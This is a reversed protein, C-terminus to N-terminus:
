LGMADMRARRIQALPAAPDPKCGMLFMEGRRIAALPVAGFICFGAETNDIAVNGKVQSGSGVKIGVGVNRRVTSNTVISGSGTAIGSLMLQVDPETCEFTAVSGTSNTVIVNSIRAAPSADLNIGVAFGTIGGNRVVVGGQGDGDDTIGSGIGSGSLTFGALDITVFGEKVVFCNGSAELNRDITYSGATLSTDCDSLVTQGSADASVMPVSLLVAGVFLATVSYLDKFNVRGTM